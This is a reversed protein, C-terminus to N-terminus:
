SAKYPRIWYFLFYEACFLQRIKGIDKCPTGSLFLSSQLRIAWDGKIPHIQFKSRLILLCIRDVKTEIVKREWSRTYKKKSSIQSKWIKCFRIKPFFNAFKIEQLVLWLIVVMPIFSNVYVNSFNRMHVWFSKLQQLVHEGM